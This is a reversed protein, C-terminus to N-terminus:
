IFFVTFSTKKKKKYVHEVIQMCFPLEFMRIGCLVVQQVVASLDTFKQLLEAHKELCKRVNNEYSSFFLNFMEM